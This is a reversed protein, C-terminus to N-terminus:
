VEMDRALLHEFSRTLMVYDAWKPVTSKMLVFIKVFAFLVRFVIQRKM